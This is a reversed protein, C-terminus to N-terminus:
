ENEIYFGKQINYCLVANNGKFFLIMDDSISYDNNPFLKILYDNSLYFLFEHNQSTFCFDKIQVRNHILLNFIRPFKTRDDSSNLIERSKHCISWDCMYIFIKKDNSFDIEMLSGYNSFINTIEGIYNNKIIKIVDIKNM